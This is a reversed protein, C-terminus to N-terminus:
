KMIQSSVINGQNCIYKIIEHDIYATSEDFKAKKAAELIANKTTSDTITTGKHIQADTVSGKQDITVKVLVVGQQKIRSVDPKPLYDGKLKRSSESGEDRDDTGIPNLGKGYGSNTTVSDELGKNGLAVPADTGKPMNFNALPNATRTEKAEGSTQQSKEEKSPKDHSSTDKPKKKPKPKPKPTANPKPKEPEPQKPEVIPEAAVLEVYLTKNSEKEIPESSVKILSFILALVVVYSALFICALHKSNM